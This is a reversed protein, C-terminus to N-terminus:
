PFEAAIRADSHVMPFRINLAVRLSVSFSGYRSYRHTGLISGIRPSRKVRARGPLDFSGGTLPTGSSHTSAQTFPRGPDFAMTM